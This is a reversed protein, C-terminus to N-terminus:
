NINQLLKQGLESGCEDSEPDAQVLPHLEVQYQSNMSATDCKLGQCTLRLLYVHKNNRADWTGHM